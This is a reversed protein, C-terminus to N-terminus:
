RIKMRIRRDKNGRKIKEIMGSKSYRKEEEAKVKKEKRNRIRHGLRCFHKRHTSLHLHRLLKGSMIPRVSSFIMILNDVLM